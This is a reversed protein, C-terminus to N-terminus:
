SPDTESEPLKLGGLDCYAICQPTRYKKDYIKKICVYHTDPWNLGPRIDSISEKKIVIDSAKFAENYQHVLFEKMKQISNFEQYHELSEFYTGGFQHPRFKIM